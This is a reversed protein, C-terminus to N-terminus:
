LRGIALYRDLHNAGHVNESNPNIYYSQDANNTVTFLGQTPELIAMTLVSYWERTVGGADVATEHEFTIVSLTCLNRLPTKALGTLSQELITDRSVVLRAHGVYNATLQEVLWAYKTSFALQSLSNLQYFWWTDLEHGLLTYGAIADDLPLFAFNINPATRGVIHWSQSDVADDTHHWHWLRGDYGRWWQKRFRGATFNRSM